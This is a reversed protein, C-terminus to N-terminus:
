SQEGNESQITVTFLLKGESGKNEQPQLLHLHTDGTHVEQKNGGEPCYGKLLSPFKSHEVHLLDLSANGM